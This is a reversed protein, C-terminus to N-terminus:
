RCSFIQQRLDVLKADNLSQKVTKPLIKGNKDYIIKGKCWSFGFELVWYGFGLIIKEHGFLALEFATIGFITFNVHEHVM